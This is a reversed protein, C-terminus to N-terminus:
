AIRRTGRRDIDLSDLFLNFRYMAVYVFLTVVVTYVMEPMMINLFYFVFDTRHRIFFLFIFVARGYLLDMVSVVLLPLRVSDGYYIRNFLGSLFGLLMYILAYTGFYYGAYTDVLLGCFLGSMAGTKQGRMFGLTATLIIMINPVVGALAIGTFVSTQLIFGVIIVLAILFGKLIFFAAKM